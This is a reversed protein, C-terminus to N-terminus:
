QGMLRVAENDAYFVGFGFGIDARSVWRYSEANFQTLLTLSIGTDPDTAQASYECNGPKPLTIPAFAFADRAFALGQIGSKGSPSTTGPFLTLVAAATPLVDMNAYQSAAPHFGQQGLDGGIPITMNGSGDATLTTSGGVVFAKLQGTSRRNKPNVNYTKQTSSNGLTFVDGPNVTDGSTWGSTAISTDGEVASTAVVPTGTFTGCTHSYLNQDIAIREYGFASALAGTLYQRGIQTQPNFNTNLYKMVSVAQRPGLVASLDETPCGNEQLTALAGLFLDQSDALSAPNTGLIGNINNTNLYAFQAAEDDVQNALQRISTKFYRNFVDDLDLVSEFAGYDFGIHRHRDVKVTSFTDVIPQQQYQAGSKVLWRQPRRVQLTDGIKHGKQGFEKAWEMNFGGVVKLNNIFEELCKFTIMQINILANNGM